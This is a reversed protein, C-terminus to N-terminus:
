PSAPRDRRALATRASRISPWRTPRAAALERLGEVAEIRDSKETEQLLWWNERERVENSRHWLHILTAQPGAHGCRLGLRRLRVAIDVDEEGWGVFRTDYGNVAEFDDRFVGLLYGYTRGHPVFEPSGAVGARRRDRPTLAMLPAAYKRASLWRALQWRHVPVGGVLVRESLAPSLEIRRGAVFWGRRASARLARVFHRRPISEGHIFVLYDSRAALAGRNLVAALRFGEDPQWVHELRSGFIAEWGEVVERTEAGSGDDAVVVDFSPDSQESLSRLVGDLAAPWEYTSVVVALSPREASM